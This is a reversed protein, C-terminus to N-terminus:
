QSRQIVSIARLARAAQQQDRTTPADPTGVVVSVRETAQGNEVTVVTTAERIKDEAPDLGPLDYGVIDGLRVNRRYQLDPGLVPTFSVSVPGAGEELAEQAARTMEALKDASAPDIQRQDILTEVAEGWLAETVTDDLQLFNRAALEGGAAVIARTTSPARIEYSWEDIIGASFTDATGFRVDDSLDAVQDIVLDLWGANTVDEVHQLEVSLNGAEALSTVLVGLHDLRGSVQTTGGRGLSPPIRLRSIQRDTQALDGAHSRIYGIILDEITGTRLDYADPFTSVASTLNHSPTPFVIRNGIRKLDEVFGVTMTEAVRNGVKTSGRQISNVKGSTIRQGDRDLICGKGPEFAAMASAPGTIAWTDPTNHREVLHLKSWQSVPDFLRTLNAERPWIMWEATTM